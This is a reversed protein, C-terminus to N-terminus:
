IGTKYGNKRLTKSLLLLSKNNVMKKKCDTIEMHKLTNADVGCKSSLIRYYDRESIKGTLLRSHLISKRFFVNKGIRKNLRDYVPDISEKVLVGAIDFIVCKIKKM